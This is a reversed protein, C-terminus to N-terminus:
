ESILIVTIYSHLIIFIYQFSYFFTENRNLEGGHHIVISTCLSDNCEKVKQLFSNGQVVM